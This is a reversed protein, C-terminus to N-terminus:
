GFLGVAASATGFTELAHLIVKPDVRIAEGLAALVQDIPGLARLELAALVNEIRIVMNELVAALEEDTSELRVPYALLHPHVRCRRENSKTNTPTRPSSPSFALPAHVTAASVAELRYVLVALQRIHNVDVMRPTPEYVEDVKSDPGGLSAGQNNLRGALARPYILSLFEPMELGKLRKEGIESIGFGMKRISAVDRRTAPDLVTEPEETFPVLTNAAVSGSREKTQDDQDFCLTKVIEIVDLSATIEGGKAEGSIRASRNVMPGFYDMRRTIPDAECHPNGWHIGMRVSLGRYCLLGSSDYIEKGDESDLIEQPWDERLLELQVTFCWLLASTVSPFSVMFADGETKVEYGGIARLQRRLLQNHMRMASQMGPNTEWLSTSNRIDTFVLAVMGTPPAVERDLLTLYKEGPADTLQGRRAAVRTAGYAEEDIQAGGAGRYTLRRKAKFLDGLAVVMVMLNSEAGYSLALDRLKQAAMMPDAKRNQARAVDVAAQYTMHAWLGANAIIIFEDDESLEITQVSPKANIAPHVHFYGFSRSVEVEDAVLGKQSVWGEASRIREIEAADFPDHKSAIPHAAGGRKAIVALADGVNAVYVTKKAVYVVVGSAGCRIDAGTSSGTISPRESTLLSGSSGKRRGDFQSTVQNGYDRNINLFARRLAEAVSEGERLRRLEAALMASFGDHLYKALKGGAFPTKSHADFLGFLSEDDRNRFRSVVMDLGVVNYDERGMSDAIGYAMSSVESQTVRVRRDENEDPVSPTTLTVDMLGLLRLRRLANFNSLNKRKATAIAIADQQKGAAPKIELRKNGSLNLYQLDLNWNWNWDYPWNTVNYKLVNSAVDLSELHKIKGLEAPLTQLKNGNVFLTKLNVLAEIEEGPLSTLSNGSLYLEELSECKSLTLSSIEYLDNFSLNLVRLESLLSIPSFVNDGLGNDGLFLEQLSKSLPPLTRNTNSVPPLKNLSPASIKRKMDEPQEAVPPMPFEEILNSSANLVILQSCNWITKPLAGLNNNALDLTHLRQLQGISEPLSTLHNNKMSFNRLNTLQAFSDSFSKIQNSDLNLSECSVLADFFEQGLSSIKAHSVNLSVLTAGTGVLLLRTISNCSANLETLSNFAGDLITVANSECLLKNLKPLDSFIAIDGLLCRRCDIERLQRLGVFTSPITSIPNALLVLRELNKLQGIETPLVTIMNFSIDLDVLSEIQCVVGPLSEFKNNSINLLRLTRFDRFYDPLTWLRNNHAKLAMLDTLEDLRAHELDVIRNNSLDLRSLSQCQRISPHVRKMGMYCLRLERLSTCLQIFDSPIDLKPNKSLNLSVLLPAHKFLFIPIAQISRAQLDVYELNGNNFDDDGGVAALSEEKYIFKILYSYDSRGVDDLRDAITYGAQELRRRQFILPKENLAVVRELGREKIYLKYSAPPKQNFLKRGLQHCIESASYTLPCSLTAFSGDSRSIRITWPKTVESTVTRSLSGAKGNVVVGGAMGPGILTRSLSSAESGNHVSSGGTDSPRRSNPGGAAPAYLNLTTGTANEDISGLRGRSSITLTNPGVVGPLTSASSSSLISGNSRAELTLHDDPGPQFEGILMAEDDESEDADTGGADLGELPNVAWSEPATWGAAGIGGPTPGPGGPFGISATTMSAPMVGLGSLGNGTAISSNSQTPMHFTTVGSAMNVLKRSPSSYNLSSAGLSPRSNVGDHPTQHSTRTLSPSSYQSHLSAHSDHRHHDLPVRGNTSRISSSYGVAQEHPNVTSRLSESLQHNSDHAGPRSYSPAGTGGLTRGPNFPDAFLTGGALSGSASAELLVADSPNPPSGTLTFSALSGDRPLTTSASVSSTRRLQILHDRDIIGEMEDLNTDLTILDGDTGHGPGPHHSINTRPPLPQGHFAHGDQDRNKASRDKNAGGTLKRIRQKAFSATPTQTLSGPFDEDAVGAFNRLKPLPPGYDELPQGGHEDNTLENRSAKKRLM